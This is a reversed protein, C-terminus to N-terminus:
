EINLHLRERREDVSAIREPPGETEEAFEEAHERRWAESVWSGKNLFKGVNVVNYRLVSQAMLVRDVQIDSAFNKRRKVSDRRVAGDHSIILPIMVAKVVPHPVNGSLFMEAFSCKRSPVNGSRITEISYKNKTRSPERGKAEDFM